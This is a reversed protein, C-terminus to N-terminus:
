LLKKKIKRALIIMIYNNRIVIILINDMIQKSQKQLFFEFIGRRFPNIWKDSTEEKESIHIWDYSGWMTVTIYMYM